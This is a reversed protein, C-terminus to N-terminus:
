PVGVYRHRQYLYYANSVTTAVPFIFLSIFEGSVETTGIKIGAAEVLVYILVTTMVPGSTYLWWKPNWGAATGRLYASDRFLAPLTVLAFASLGIIVVVIAITGGMAGVRYTSWAIFGVGIISSAVYAAILYWNKEGTGERITTGRSSRSGESM